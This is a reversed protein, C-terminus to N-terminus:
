YTVSHHYNTQLHLNGVAHLRQKAAVTERALDHSVAELDVTM